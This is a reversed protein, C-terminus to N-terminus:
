ILSILNKTQGNFKSWDYGNPNDCIIWQIAWYTELAQNYNTFINTEYSAAERSNAQESIMNGGIANKVPQDRTFEFFIFLSLMELIGESRRIGCSDDMNFANWIELFKPDTPVTGTLAFDTAFDDYLEAGLLDQLYRVEYKDLYDQEAIVSFKDKAVKTQGKLDAINIYLSM